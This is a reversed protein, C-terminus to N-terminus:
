LLELIEKYKKIREEKRPSKFIEELLGRKYLAIYLAAARAQNSFSKKPNFEIDTFADYEMLKEAIEKNQYVANIYIWDYFLTKPELDWNTGFFNFSILTMIEKIRFYKKAERSTMKLIEKYPGGEKFVKSSQFACEVSFIKDKWEIMLNFASLKIGLDINSKSSIELIRSESYTKKYASHLSDISKQKQILAFGPYWQFEIVEEDVLIDGEVRPIYVPRKAM